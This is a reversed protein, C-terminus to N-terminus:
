KIMKRLIDKSDRYTMMGKHHTLVKRYGAKILHVLLADKNGFHKFILAESVGANQAIAKTSTDAYGQESFLNLAERVIKEKRSLVSDKM